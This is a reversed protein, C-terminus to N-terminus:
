PHNVYATGVATRMVPKSETLLDVHDLSPIPTRPTFWAYRFVYADQELRPLESEIYEVAHAVREDASPLPSPADDTSPALETLWLAKSFQMRAWASCAACSNGGCDVAFEDEDQIDNSCHPESPELLGAKRKFADIYWGLGWWSYVHGAQYDIRCDAGASGSVSCEDYFLEAWEFANYRHEAAVTLSYEPFEFTHEISQQTCSGAHDVSPSPDCYNTAPAVLELGRQDAVRELYTWANAAATPTLNSQHAFNPENFGLLYRSGAPISQALREISLEDNFCVGGSDCAAGADTLGWTMPVYEVQTNVAGTSVLCQDPAAGWNYYWSIGSDPEPGGQLLDLDAQGDANDGECFSYAVGRKSSRAPAVDCAQCVGGCDTDTEDQNKVGDSCSEMTPPCTGCDDPCDGCTERADCAGDGCGRSADASTDAADTAADASADKVEADPMVGGDAADHGSDVATRGSSDGRRADTRSTGIGSDLVVRGSGDGGGADPLTGDDRDRDPGLPLTNGGDAAAKKRGWDTTRPDDVRGICAASALALWWLWVRSNARRWTPEM